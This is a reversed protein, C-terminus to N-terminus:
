MRSGRLEALQARSLRLDLNNDWSCMQEFSDHTLEVQQLVEEATPHEVFKLTKAFTRCVNEVAAFCADREAMSDGVSLFNFYADRPASAQRFSRNGNVSTEEAAAAAFCKRAILQMVEQKWTASDGDLGFTQEYWSRASVIHVDALALVSQVDPLYLASSMEVWGYEAATVVFVPGYAVAKQLLRAVHASILNLVERQDPTVSIQHGRYKPLLDHAHLWSSPCLTDDWDFVVVTRDRVSNTHTGSRRKPHPTSVPPSVPNMPRLTEVASCSAFAM